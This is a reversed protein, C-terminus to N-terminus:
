PVVGYNCNTLVIYNCLREKALAPSPGRLQFSLITGTGDHGFARMPLRIGADYPGLRGTEATEKGLPDANRM